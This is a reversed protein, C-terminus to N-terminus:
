GCECARKPTRQGGGGGGRRRRPAGGGACGPDGLPRLRLLGLACAICGPPCRRLRTTTLLHEEGRLPHPPAEGVRRRPPLLAHGGDDTGHPTEDAGFSPPSSLLPSSFPPVLGIILSLLLFFFFLLSVHLSLCPLFLSFFGSIIVLLRLGFVVFHPIIRWFHRGRLARGLARDSHHIYGNKRRRKGRYALRAWLWRISQDARSPM